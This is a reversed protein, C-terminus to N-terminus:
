DSCDLVCTSSSILPSLTEPADSSERFAAETNTRKAESLLASDLSSYKRFRKFNPVSSMDAWGWMAEMNLRTLEM